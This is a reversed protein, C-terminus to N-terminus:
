SKRGSLRRSSSISSTRRARHRALVHRLHDQLGGQAGADARGRVFPTMGSASVGIVVDKRTPRLRAIARAGEEYDDEVGEKAKFVADKGGAM